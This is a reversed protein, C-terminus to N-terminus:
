MPSEADPGDTKDEVMLGTAYIQNDSKLTFVGREPQVDLVLRDEFFVAQRRNYLITVPAACATGDGPEPGSVRWLRPVGNVGCGCGDIDYVLKLPRPDAGRSALWSVAAPTLTINM